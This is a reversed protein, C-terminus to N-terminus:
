TQEGMWEDTNSEPSAVTFIRQQLLGSLNVHCLELAFAPFPRPVGLGKEGKSKSPPLERHLLPCGPSVIFERSFQTTKLM